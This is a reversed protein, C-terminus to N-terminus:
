HSYIIIENHKQCTSYYINGQKKALYEIMLLAPDSIYFLSQQRVWLALILNKARDHHFSINSKILGHHHM